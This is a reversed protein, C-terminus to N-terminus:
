VRFLRQFNETTAEAVEEYSVRKLAAIQEAVFRVYSPENRKGRQPQPALYPADTEVLIDKLDVAAAVAQLENANPFTVIGTFGLLLGRKLAQDAQDQTGSFCHLTGRIANGGNNVEDIITFLDDYADRCHFIVPLGKSVAFELIQRLTSQQLEKYEEDGMGEGSFEKLHYYDLGVEGIAVVREDEIIEAFVKADFREATTTFSYEKGEFEDTETLNRALHIPHLGATAYVGEEFAHAVEVAKRSTLSNTGVNMIGIGQELARLGVQHWDDAYANFNLHCHADFLKM